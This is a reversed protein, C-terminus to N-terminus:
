LGLEQEAEEITYTRGADCDAVGEHFAQVAEESLEQEDVLTVPRRDPAEQPTALSQLYRAAAETQGEPLRDVLRHLQERVASM